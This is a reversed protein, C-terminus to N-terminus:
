PDAGQEHDGQHHPVQGTLDVVGVVLRGGRLPVGERALLVLTHRVGSDGLEGLL